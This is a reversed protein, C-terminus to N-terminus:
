KYGGSPCFPATKRGRWNSGMAACSESELHIGIIEPILHRNGRRWQRAFAMDSRDAAGHPPYLKIGTKAANWLQFFGIPVYGDERLRAIRVGLPFANGKVFIDNSHQIEPASLYAMFDDFNQCMLRDIGYIDNPDLEAREMLQRARPPLLIDADMHCAWDTLGLKQLGANIGAAKDFAKEDRYFEDTIVCQVDYHECIDRTKRDTSDTVVVLRDFHGKNRPLTHCLFDSYNVCVVVAEIKM